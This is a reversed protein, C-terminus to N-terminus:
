GFQKTFASVDEANIKKPNSVLSLSLSSSSGALSRGILAAAATSAMVEDTAKLIVTQCPSITTNPTTASSTSALNAAASTSTASASYKLTLNPIGSPLHSSSSTPLTDLYVFILVDVFFM